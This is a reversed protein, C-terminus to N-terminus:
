SDKQFGKIIVDCGQFNNFSLNQVMTKEISDQIKSRIEKINCDQKIRIRVSLRVTGRKTFITTSPVFVGPIEECTKGVLEHLADQTIQVNGNDDEFINILDKKLRRIIYLILCLLFFLGIAYLYLPNNIAESFSWNSIEQLKRDIM